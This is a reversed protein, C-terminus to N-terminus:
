VTPYNLQAYMGMSAWLDLEVHVVRSLVTVNRRQLRYLTSTSKSWSNQANENELLYTPMIYSHLAKECSVGNANIM